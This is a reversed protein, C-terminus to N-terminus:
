DSEPTGNLDALQNTVVVDLTKGTAPDFALAIEVAHTVIGDQDGSLPEINSIIGALWLNVSHSPDGADNYQLEVFINGGRNNLWGNTDPTSAVTMSLTGSFPAGYPNIGAAYVDGVQANIQANGPTISLNWDYLHEFATGSTEPVSHPFQDWLRATWVRGAIARPSISPFGVTAPSVEYSSVFKAFGSASLATTGSSQASLELSTLAIGNVFFPVNGDSVIAQMSVPPLSTTESGLEWTWTRTWDNDVSSTPEQLMAFYFPLEDTPVAPSELSITPNVATLTQSGQVIPNRIGITRDAGLDWEMGYTVIGTPGVAMQRSQSQVEGATGTGYSSESRLNVKTYLTTGKAM